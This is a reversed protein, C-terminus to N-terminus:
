DVFSRVGVAERCIPPFIVRQSLQKVFQLSWNCNFKSVFPETKSQHFSIGLFYWEWLFVGCVAINEAQFRGHKKVFLEHKGCHDTTAKM